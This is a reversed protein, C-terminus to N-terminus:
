EAMRDAVRFADPSGANRSDGGHGVGDLYVANPSEALCRTTSLTEESNQLAPALYSVVIVSAHCGLM